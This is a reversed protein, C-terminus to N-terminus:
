VVIQGFFTSGEAATRQNTEGPDRRGDQVFSPTSCDRNHGREFIPVHTGEKMLFVSKGM